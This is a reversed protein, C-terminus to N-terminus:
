EKFPEITEARYGKDIRTILYYGSLFAERNPRNNIWVQKSQFERGFLNFLFPKFSDFSIDTGKITEIEWARRFSGNALLRGEFVQKVSKIPLGMLDVTEM